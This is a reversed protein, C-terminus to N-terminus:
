NSMQHVYKMYEDYTLRFETLRRIIETLQNLQENLQEMETMLFPKQKIEISGEPEEPM